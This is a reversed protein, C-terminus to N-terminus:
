GAHRFGAEEMTLPPGDRQIDVGVIQAVVLTSDGAAITTQMECELSALSDELMACGNPGAHRRVQALKDPVKDWRKGLLGALERSGSPLVNVTFIKTRQIIPLSHSDNQVSVALVPPDFSVQTLWNATFGNEDAGERVTVVYLGYTFLRLATKKAADDM